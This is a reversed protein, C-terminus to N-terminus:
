DQDDWDDPDRELELAAVQARLREVEQRLRQRDQVRSGHEFIQDARTVLLQLWNSIDERSVCHRDCIDKVTENAGHRGLYEM